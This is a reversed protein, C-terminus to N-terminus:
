CYKQTNPDSLPNEGCLGYSTIGTHATNLNFPVNYIIEWKGLDPTVKNFVLALHNKIMQIQQESLENNNTLEFFGQLWYCFDRENFM